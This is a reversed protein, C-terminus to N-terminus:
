GSPANTRRDVPELETATVRCSAQSPPPVPKEWAAVAVALSVLQVSSLTLTVMGALQALM